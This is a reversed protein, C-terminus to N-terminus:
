LESFELECINRNSIIVGVGDSEHHQIVTVTFVCACDVVMVEWIEQRRGQM